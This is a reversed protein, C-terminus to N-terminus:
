GTIELGGQKGGKLSDRELCGCTAFVCCWNTSECIMCYANHLTLSRIQIVKNVKARCDVCSSLGNLLLRNGHLELMGSVGAYTEVTASAIESGELAKLLGM